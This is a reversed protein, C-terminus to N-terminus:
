VIMGCFSSILDSCFWDSKIDTHSANFKRIRKKTCQHLEVNPSVLNRHKPKRSVTEKDPVKELWRWTTLVSRFWKIKKFSFFLESFWGIQSSCILHICINIKVNITLSFNACNFCMPSSSRITCTQENKIPKFFHQRKM